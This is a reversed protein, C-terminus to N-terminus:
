SRMWRNLSPTSTQNLFFPCPYEPMWWWPTISILWPLFLLAVYRYNSGRHVVRHLTSRYLGNTWVEWMEGINCVICGPIPDANIWIGEEKGEEAPLGLKGTDTAGLGGFAAALHSKLRQLVTRRIAAGPRRLFVQLASPSPDAYLFRVFRNISEV